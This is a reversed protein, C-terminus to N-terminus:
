REEEADGARQDGGSAAQETLVELMSDAWEACMQYYRRGYDVTFRWYLPDGAGRLAGGYSDITQEAGQDLANVAALCYSKLAGINQLNIDLPLAGSFFLQLLLESHLQEEHAYLPQHLWLRLAQQGAPTISYVRKNPKDTQLILESAVWGEGEMTKLERYIQSKQARWFYRLSNEFVSNLDYGTMPRYNLLGLLGYKLSM